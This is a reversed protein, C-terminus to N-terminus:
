DLLEGEIGEVIVRDGPQARRVYGLAAAEGGPLTAASTIEGAPEGQRLVPAGAAIPRPFRMRFLGRHVQGRARIREVIEQGIYCGKHFDLTQFQRTEQPLDREHIDLGYLPVGAAIRLREQQAGDQWLAGAAQLRAAWDKLDADSAALEWAQMQGWAHHFLWHADGLLPQLQALPPTPLNTQRLIDAAAPGILALAAVNEGFDRFEVKERLIFRRLHAYLSLRQQEDALLLFSDEALAAVQLTGLIHGRPNLVFADALSGPALERVNATLMAHLWARADDGRVGLWARWSWDLCFTPSESSTTTAPVAAPVDEWALLTGRYTRSPQGSLLFSSTKM